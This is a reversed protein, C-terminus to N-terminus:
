ARAESHPHCRCDAEGEGGSKCGSMMSKRRRRRKTREKPPKKSQSVKKINMNIHNKRKRWKAQEGGGGAEHKMVRLINNEAEREEKKKESHEVRSAKTEPTSALRPLPSFLFFCFNCKTGRQSAVDRTERTATEPITCISSNSKAMESELM